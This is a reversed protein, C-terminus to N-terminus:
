LSSPFLGKTNMPAILNDRRSPLGLRINVALLYTHSPYQQQITTDDRTITYTYTITLSHTQTHTQTHTHTHTHKNCPLARVTILSLCLLVGSLRGSAAYVSLGSVGM